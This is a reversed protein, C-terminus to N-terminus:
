ADGEGHEITEGEFGEERLEEMRVEVETARLAEEEEQETHQAEAAVGDTAVREVEKMVLENLGLYFETSHLYSTTAFLLLLLAELNGVDGEQMMKLVQGYMLSGDGWRVSWEGSMAKCVLYEGNSNRECGLLFNGVQFWKKESKKSM